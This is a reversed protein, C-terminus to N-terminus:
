AHRTIRAARALAQPPLLLLLLEALPLLAVEDPWVDVAVAVAVLLLLAKTSYLLPRALLLLVAKGLTALGIISCVM